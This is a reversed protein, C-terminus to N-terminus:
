YNSSNFRYTYLDPNYYSVFVGLPVRKGSISVTDVNALTKLLFDVSLHLLSKQEKTARVANIEAYNEILPLKCKKLYQYLSKNLLALDINQMIDFNLYEENIAIPQNNGTRLRKLYHFKSPMISSNPFSVYTPVANSELLNYSLLTSGPTMRQRKIIDSFSVTENLSRVISKEKVFTGRGAIRTVYGQKELDKLAKNVTMRSFGNQQSIKVEPPLRDGAKLSGSNIKKIFFDEIKQYKAKLKKDKM